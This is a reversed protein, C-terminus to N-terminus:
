KVGILFVFDRVSTQYNFLNLSMIVLKFVFGYRVVVQHGVALCCILVYHIKLPM